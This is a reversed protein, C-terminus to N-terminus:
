LHHTTRQLIKQVTPVGGALQLAVNRISEVDVQRGELHLSARPENQDLILNGAVNLKPYDLNMEKLSVVIRNNDIQIDGKIRAAEIVLEDKGQSLNLYPIKAQIETKLQHPGDTEFHLSLNTQAEAVRWLTGPILYDALLQPQFQTLNVQGSGKFNSPDLRGYISIREAISSKCSVNLMLKKPPMEIYAQLDKFWFASTNGEFLKLRGAKLLIVLGPEPLTVPGLASIIKQQIEKIAALPLRKNKTDIREPLKIQINPAEVKLKSIRVKGTLLPLLAPYVALSEITGTAKGSIAFKSQHIVAHPRFFFSLGVKQFEVDGKISRSVEAQIKELIEKQNIIFTSFLAM